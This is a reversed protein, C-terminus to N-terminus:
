LNIIYFNINLNMSLTIKIKNIFKINLNLSQIIIILLSLQTIIIIYEIYKLFNIFQDSKLIKFNKSKESIDKEKSLYYDSYRLLIDFKEELSNLQYIIIFNFFIFKVIIIYKLKQSNYWIRTILIYRSNIHYNKSIINNLLLIISLSLYKRIISKM